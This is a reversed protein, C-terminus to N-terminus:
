PIGCFVCEIGGNGGLCIYVTRLERYNREAVARVANYREIGVSIKRLLLIDIIGKFFINGTRFIGANGIHKLFTKCFHIWTAIVSYIKKGVAKGVLAVCWFLDGLSYGGPTGFM